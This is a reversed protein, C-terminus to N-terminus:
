INLYAAYNFNIREIRSIILVLEDDTFTETVNKIFLVWGQGEKLEVEYYCHLIDQITITKREM